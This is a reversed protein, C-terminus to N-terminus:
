VKRVIKLKKPTGPSHCAQIEASFKQRISLLSCRSVEESIDTLKKVGKDLRENIFDVVEQSSMSNWIGDCALVMFEDRSRDIDLTKIDPLASIM